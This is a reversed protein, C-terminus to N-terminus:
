PSASGDVTASGAVLGGRELWLARAEAGWARWARAADVSAAAADDGHGSLWLLRASWELALAHDQAYGSLSACDASTKLMRQAADHDGRVAALVAELLQAKHRFNAACLGAWGRMETTLAEAKEIDAPDGGQLARGAAALAAYQVLEFEATQGSYAPRALEAKAAWDLAQDWLGYLAAMKLKSVLYYGIQNSLTTNLIAALDRQEDFEADSFSLPGETLGALAKAIQLEHVLHFASNNVRRGNRALHLRATAIVEALPLGAAQQYIVHGSLNFCAYMLADTEFGREAAALSLALSDRLPRQWHGHFWTYVFGVEAFQRQGDRADLSLALRSWEAAGARDGTIVAHVVSYLSYVQAADASHGHELTLRMATIAALAYLDMRNSQFALPAINLLAKVVRATAADDMAAAEIFAVAPRGAVRGLVQGMGEGIRAGVADPDNPLDIDLLRLAALGIATAEQAHGNSFVRVAELELYDAARGADGAAAWHAAIRGYYAALDAEHQVEYWRALDGHLHRRLEPLVLDYVVERTIEQRFEYGESADVIAADVLGLRRQAQLHEAITSAEAHLPHIHAIAALPGRTGTVSEVKLTLRTAPAMADVRNTITARVSTPLAAASGDHRLRRQVDGEASRVIDGRDVLYQALEATFFPNGEAREHIIDVVAADVSGAALRSAILAASDDRDLAHLELSTAGAEQLGALALAPPRSCVLIAMARLSRSLSELLLLSEGDAWHADEILLLLPQVGAAQQLLEILLSRTAAVREAPMLGAVWASDTLGLPLVANILCLREGYRAGHSDILQARRAELSGAGDVDLLRAYVSRLSQFPTAQEVRSSEGVLLQFGLATARRAAAEAVASKGMGPDGLLLCCAGSGSGALALTADVAALAAERGFLPQPALSALTARPSWVPLAEDWGKIAIRPLAEFGMRDGCARMTAEDCLIADPMVHSLRSALNIADGIVAYHRRADTGLVGIFALGAAIGVSGAQGLQALAQLLDQSCRLARLADDRHSYPPLGFVLQFGAGKEDIALCRVVGEYRRCTQQALQALEHIRAVFDPRTADLDPLKLFVSTVTRLEATWRSEGIELGHRVAAPLFAALAAVPEIDAAVVLRTAPSTPLSELLQGGNPLASLRTTTDLLAAAEASLILQNPRQDRAIRGLQSLAGGATAYLREGGVGGFDLMRLSGATIHLHLSLQLGPELEQRCDRSIADACAIAQQVATALSAEECFFSILLGDGFFETPEGGHALTTAIVADFHRNLIASLREVGTPGAAVLRKALPSFKAVDCWLVAGFGGFSAHADAATPAQAYARRLTEPVLSAVLKSM